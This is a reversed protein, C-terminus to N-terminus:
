MRAKEFVGGIHELDPEVLFTDPFVRVQITREKSNGVGLSKGDTVSAQIEPKKSAHAFTFFLSHISPVPLIPITSREQIPM